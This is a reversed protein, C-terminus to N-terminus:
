PRGSITPPLCACQSTKRHHCNHQRRMSMTNTQTKQQRSNNNTNKIPSAGGDGDRGECAFCSVFAPPAQAQSCGRSRRRLHLRHWACGQRSGLVVEVLGQCRVDDECAMKSHLMGCLAPHHSQNNTHKHTHTRSRGIYQKHRRLAGAFFCRWFFYAGPFLSDRGGGIRGMVDPCKPPSEQSLLAWRIM